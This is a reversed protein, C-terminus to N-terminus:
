FIVKIALYVVWTLLLPILWLVRGVSQLAMGIGWAAESGYEKEFPRFIMVAIFLSILAPLIWWGFTITLGLALMNSNHSPISGGILLNCSSAKGNPWCLM